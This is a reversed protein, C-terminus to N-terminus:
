IKFDVTSKIKSLDDENINVVKEGAEELYLNIPLDQEIKWLTYETFKGGKNIGISESVKILEWSKLLAIYVKIKKYENSDNVNHGLAQIFLKVCFNTPTNSRNNLEWLRKLMSYFLILEAGVVTSYALLFRILDIHLYTYLEAHPLIIADNTVMIKGYLELKELAALITNRASKIGLEKGMQTYNITNRYVFYHNERRNGNWYAKSILWYFVALQKNTFKAFENDGQKAAPVKRQYDQKKTTSM